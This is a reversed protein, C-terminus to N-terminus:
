HHIEGGGAGIRGGLDAGGVGIQTANIEAVVGAGGPLMLPTGNM